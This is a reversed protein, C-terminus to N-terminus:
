QKVIVPKGSCVASRDTKNYKEVFDVRARCKKAVEWVTQGSSPYCIRIVNGEQPVPSYRDLVGGSVASVSSKKLADCSICLECSFIVSDGDLRADCDTVSATMEWSLEGTPVDQVGEIRCGTEFKLPVSYEETVVDGGSAIFVRFACNGTFLTKGSACEAKEFNPVACVSIIYDDRGGGAKRQSSGSVSLQSVAAAALSNIERSERRTEMECETSYMDCVAAAKSVSFWEGDLDYEADIKLLGTDGEDASVSVSAARGWAIATDADSCGDAPIKEEFPLKARVITYLGDAGLALCRVCVEGRVSISDKAASAEGINVSSECMVPKTGAKERIEGSVNATASGRGRRVTPYTCSLKEIRRIDSASAPNEETDTIDVHFSRERDLCIRSRLRARLSIRRPAMVRCQPAEALTDCFIDASGEPTEPLRASQSYDCAYPVSVLAGDDGIYLVTFALTGGFELMDGSIFKSDPLAQASVSIVKRIEPFYDPMTYEGGGEGTVTMDCVTSYAATDESKIIKPRDM